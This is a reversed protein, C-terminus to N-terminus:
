RPHSQTRAGHSSLAATGNRDPHTQKSLQRYAKKIDEESANPALGLIDAAEKLDLKM